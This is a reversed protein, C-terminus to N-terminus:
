IGMKYDYQKAKDPKSNEYDTRVEPKYSPVVRSVFPLRELKEMKFEVDEQNVYLLAYKMKKSAYILHGHKKIQRINKMHQFYVILGQRNTKNM